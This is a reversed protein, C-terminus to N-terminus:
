VQVDQLLLTVLEGPKVSVEMRDSVFPPTDLPTEDLRVRRIQYPRDFRICDNVTQKAPNFFRFVIGAQDESFKVASLRLTQAQVLPAGLPKSGTHRDTHLVAPPCVFCDAANQVDEGLLPFLAYELTLPMQLQGESFDEDAGTFFSRYLVNGTLLMTLSLQQNDAVYRHLGKHLVALDGMKVYSATPNTKGDAPRVETSYAGDSQISPCHVLPFNVDIKHDRVTNQLNTRISVAPSTRTVTVTTIIPVKTCRKSRCKGGDCAGVPLKWAAQLSFVACDADDQLVSIKWSLNRSDLKTDGPIPAFQYADGWTGVDTLYCLGPYHRSTRKDLLDLTGDTHLQLSIFDNEASVPSTLLSGPKKAAKRLAFVTFCAPPLDKVQLIGETIVNETFRQVADQDSTIRSSKRRASISVPSLQGNKDVVEIADWAQGDPLALSFPVAGSYPRPHPNFLAIVQQGAEVWSTDVQDLYEKAAFATVQQCIEACNRYRTMMDRCTANSSCACIGDHTHNQILLKWARSLFTRYIGPSFRSVYVALPEAISALLAQVHANETKIYIRQALTDQLFSLDGSQRLEGEWVPLTNKTDSLADFCDELRDCYVFGTQKPEVPPMMDGGCTYMVFPYQVQAQCQQQLMETAQPETQVIRIGKRMDHFDLVGSMGYSLHIVTLASGDPSRWVFDRGLSDAPGRSLFATDIGFGNFIAPLSAPHGFADPVYGVQMCETGFRKAIQKGLLLNRVMSEGFPITEDPQIYWPGIILRNEQLYREVCARKDGHLELYEELVSTQGDLHFCYNEDEEMLELVRTIIRAFFIRTQEQPIYWERDMHCSHIYYIRKGDPTYQEM